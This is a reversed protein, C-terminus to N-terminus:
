RQQKAQISFRLLLGHTLSLDQQQDWPPPQLHPLNNPLSAAALEGSDWQVVGAGRWPKQLGREVKRPFRLLIQLIESCPLAKPRLMECWFILAQYKLNGRNKEVSKSGCKAATDNVKQGM